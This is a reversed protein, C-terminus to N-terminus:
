NVPKSHYHIRIEWTYEDTPMDRLAGMDIKAAIRLYGQTAVGAVSYDFEGGWGRLTLDNRLYQLFAQGVDDVSQHTVGEEQQTTAWMENPRQALRAVGSHDYADRRRSHADVFIGWEELTKRAVPHCAENVMRLFNAAEASTGNKSADQNQKPEKSGRCGM